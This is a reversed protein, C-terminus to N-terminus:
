QVDDDDNDGIFDEHTPYIRLSGSYLAKEREAARMAKFKLVRRHLELLEARDSYWHWGDRNNAM